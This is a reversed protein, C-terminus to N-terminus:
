GNTNEKGLLRESKEQKEISQPLDAQERDPLRNKARDAGSRAMHLVSKFQFGGGAFSLARGQYQFWCALLDRNVENDEVVLVSGEDRKM